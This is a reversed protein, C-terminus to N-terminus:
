AKGDNFEKLAKEISTADPLSLVRDAFDVCSAMDLGRIRRRVELISHASMSLENFGLGILLPVYEAQGAMEGCISVPVGNSRGADAVHKMLRIVAPHLPRYLHAIRENGRDVAITYQILDNTGISMFDVHKAIIDSTIAASPTEIMTGVKMEENFAIGKRRCEKKVEDLFAIVDMLEESGSIMPFMIRVSKSLSSAKLISVLQSRFFDRNEMCYRVARWGLIPNEEEFSMGDAVKDGGLDYTRFTVPGYSGMRRAAEDYASEGEMHQLVLFETRFLGIGDAGAAIAGDIGEASEINCMLHVRHGDLTIAPLEAEKRLEKETRAAIGKRARFSRLTKEDPDIIAIGEKADMAIMAGDEVDTSIDGIGLIAPIEDSHALIAVHSTPGGSDLLLGLIDSKELEMLESPTLYDAIIISPETLEIGGGVGAIAHLLRVEADRIDAIREAFYSDGLAALAATYKETAAEVAWSASYRRETINERILALFDPDSLMSEYVALIDAEDKTTPKIAHLESLVRSLAEEFAALESQPDESLSHEVNELITHRFVASRGTVVGPFVGIGKKEVMGHNYGISGSLSYRARM